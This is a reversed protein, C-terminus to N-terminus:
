RGRRPPLQPGIQAGYSVANRSQVWVRGQGSFECILSEGGFFAKARGRAFPRIQFSLTDEFAVVHGTDVIYGEDVQLEQIAGFSTFAMPGQGEARLMFLGEGALFTRAGGWESDIGVTDASCLFSTSQLMLGIEKALEYVVIDGTVKPAFTVTASRGPALFRNQYLSEGGALRSLGGWLGGLCGRRRRSGRGAVASTRITVHTDMSVMAAAEAVVTEDPQLTVTALAYAPRHHVDITM